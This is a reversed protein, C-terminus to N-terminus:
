KDVIKCAKNQNIYEIIDPFRNEKNVRSNLFQHDGVIILLSKARSFAVNLRAESSLFGIKAPNNNSRVTSYIIIEKQSGQFADVTNVDVEINKYKNQILMDELAYKQAKYPTIIGIKTKSTLKSDLFDLKKKIINVELINKFTPKDSKGIKEEKRDKEPYSSTSFWEIAINSYEEIGINRENESVGNQIEGNYFINSILNGIVPHMRYQTKLIHKSEEPFLNYLIEFIGVNLKEIDIKDKNKYIIENDLVPPLQKHDGVMIIKKAKNFSVALEPFTAKAAEDIILYDFDNQKIIKNSMFGTCTGAVITSNKIIYLDVSDCRHLHELWQTQIELIKRLQEKNRTNTKEKLDDIINHKIDDKNFDKINSKELEKYYEKFEDRSIDLNKLLNDSVKKCNNKVSEIWNERVYNLGYKEKIESDLNEDRGIRILSPNNESEILDILMKDVATHSQSVLLIKKQLLNKNKKNEKLIQRIIEIIVNTKGTGPPGQIISICELNLVKKVAERQSSDLFENFFNIRKEFVRVKPKEVGSIISKLNFPCSYDEKKMMDFADIQRDINVKDKRYDLCISGKKPLRVFNNEKNLVLVIHGKDLYEHNYYGITQIRSKKSQINKKTEYIFVSDKSLNCNELFTEKELVFYIMDNKIKYSEYDVRVINEEVKQQMLTLLDRFVGYKNKYESDINRKSIYENHYDDIINKIELSDNKYERWLKNKDVFKIYSGIEAFINRLNERKNPVVKKFDKVEFLNLEQNYECIIEYASGLFRYNETEKDKFAYINTFNKTLIDNDTIKTNQPILHNYKLKRFIRNDMYINIQKDSDLFRKFLPDLDKKLDIIDEYRDKADEKVLKKIIPKLQTDIGSVYDIKDQFETVIPPEEETFLFYIFAGISYLDSQITANESHLYVEPASYLNTGMNYTTEYSVMEKIKCIGFDILKVNNTETLMINNPNIDRHIIGNLHAIEVANLLQKIINFKEKPTLTSLKIKSISNGYIYEMFIFGLKKNTKNNKATTHDLIKVINNCSNLKYLAKIEKDFISQYLPEEIGIISKRVFLDLTDPDEMLDVQSNTIGRKSLNEVLKLDNYRTM